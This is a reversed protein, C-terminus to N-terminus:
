FVHHTNKAALFPKEENMKELNGSLTPDTPRIRKFFGCKWLIYTFLALVLVGVLIALSIILWPIATDRQQNRLEPYARTEVEIDNHEMVEVGFDEPIKATATSIIRVRDVRPYESVLTSNWLRAKVMVQAESRAPMNYIDCEIRICRATGKNCDLEVIDQKKGSGSSGMGAAEPEYILRELRTVRELTSRQQRSHTSHTSHTQNKNLQSRGHVMMLTAPAGLFGSASEQSGSALKLPNVYEPAVHCEGVGIEVTPMQELYLLYLDTHGREPDSYLSWPWHIIMRVKPATSPGDNFITFSHNVQSGVDVMEMPSNDTVQSAGSYFSQEPMAWGRFHLKAQRVVSVSLNREPPEGGVLKSTTNAFIHFLMSNENPELSKPQFRITVFTTTGRLMPNGLSCVVLTTNFSNCTANTPKKTAVYSVGAQHSIFLQAEYASDALNSVSIGVELETEDLILTYKNDIATINPEARIVLDSECLDDDGCDKQFTGEFDIHAQTQDLMPNLRTLASEALPPEELTYKLRFSIPTQIDRTNAKIYGTVMQCAVRGDTRVKVVRSIVNSRKNDRDFFARSFKKLHDYTEAEVSYMLSLEKTSDDYPEISCCAEFTFCTLNSFADARCGPQNPDINRLEESRYSTQINIIPRALLVVTASSNFAGVVVDPYSNGDLDTNGAISIGFTRIPQGHPVTAGLESAQIRQAPKDNLGQQSGLYIYVVGQGEYPAGVAIDECNDKNLDGVNALALGFRSELAGTLRLTHRRPLTDQDNQYVYVAGGENKGFFVPAAVILDPRNDGNVDATTLEYGFSSGFQEGDIILRVPIPNTNAKDFIVVQGHGNSRPAGAAYCMNYGFFRGGTVSMGLYSYKDVPSSADSHDSYYTTKDRHLYEGGIQTVWISGRWTFPGPSGLVMTDDDLLAGSTGAQCLGYDEHQRQVPRGKCPEHVEDFQLDNTLVYCLGQGYRNERVIYMYRHACVLVKGGSGNAQLPNSRVTVGMWQGEKIEDSSPPSLVESDYSRRGDTIVQECDDFRQTIPCRWLAGSHSTNPQRNHDLPAGVLLCKTNNASNAEGITHTAVSYGFHSHPHGYKILPLRQELNFGCVESLALALLLVLWLQRVPTAYSSAAADAAAATRSLHHLMIMNRSKATTRPTARARAGPVAIARGEAADSIEWCSILLSPCAPLSAPDVVATAASRDVPLQWPNEVSEKVTEKSTKNNNQKGEGYVSVCVCASLNVPM